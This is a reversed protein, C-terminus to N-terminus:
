QLTLTTQVTGTYNGAATTGNRVRCRLNASGPSATSTLASGTANAIDVPTGSDIFVGNVGDPDVGSACRLAFQNAGPTASTVLAADAGGGGNEWAADVSEVQIKWGANAVINTLSQSVITSGWAGTAVEGLDRNAVGSFAEVYGEIQYDWDTYDIVDTENDNRANIVVRWRDTTTKRAIKGVAVDVQVTAATTDFGGSVFQAGDSSWSDLGPVENVSWTNGVNQTVTALYGGWESPAGTGDVCDMGGNEYEICVGFWVGALGNADALDVTVRLVSTGPTWIDDDEGPDHSIDVVSSIEASLPADTTEFTDETDITQAAVPGVFLAFTFISVGMLVAPIRLRTALSMKSEGEM